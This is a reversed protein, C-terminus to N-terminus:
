LLRGGRGGPALNEDEEDLRKSNAVPKGFMETMKRQKLSDNKEVIKKHLWDPHRVRPVPNAVGQLAAPITIIKMITGGLRELYYDWDLVKRIDLDVLSSDKLWRRLYHQKM